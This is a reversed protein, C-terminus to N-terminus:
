IQYCGKRETQAVQSRTCKAETDCVYNGNDEDEKRNNIWYAKLDDSDFMSM